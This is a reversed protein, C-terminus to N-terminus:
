VAVARLDTRSAGLCGGIFFHLRIRQVDEAGLRFPNDAVQDLM